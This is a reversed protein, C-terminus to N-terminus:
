FFRELLVILDTSNIPKAIYDDFGQQRFVFEDEKQAFATQAIIFLGPDKEKMRKLAETGDM